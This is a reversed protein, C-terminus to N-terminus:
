LGIPTMARRYVDNMMLVRHNPPYIHVNQSCVKRMINQLPKGYGHHQILRYTQFQQFHLQTALNKKIDM